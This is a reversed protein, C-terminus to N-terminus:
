RDSAGDKPVVTFVGDLVGREGDNGARGPEGVQPRVAAENEGMARNHAERAEINALIQRTERDSREALSERRGTPRNQGNPGGTIWAAKLGQWGRNICETLIEDVTLQPLKAIERGMSDIVTQSIPARKAQRLKKYDEWVQKCPENPWSSFDLNNHKLNKKSETKSKHGTKPVPKQYFQYQDPVLEPTDRNQSVGIKATGNKTGTKLTFDSSRGFRKQASVLSLEELKSLCQM